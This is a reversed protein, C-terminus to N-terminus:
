QAMRVVVSERAERGKEDLAILTYTTAAKPQIEVCRSLAPGVGDVAPEFRVSKANSVGYCLLGKGGPKVAPPNAYLMLVKLQGSGLKDLIKQDAEIRKREQARAIEENEANRRYIIWGSYACVILVVIWSYKVAQKASVSPV